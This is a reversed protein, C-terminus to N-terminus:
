IPTSAIRQFWEFIDKQEYSFAMARTHFIYLFSGKVLYFPDTNAYPFPYKSKLKKLAVQATAEDKFIWQEIVGDIVWSSNQRKQYFYLWPNDATRFIETDISYDENRVKANWWLVESKEKEIKYFPFKGFVHIKSDLLEPYSKLRKVRNTDSKYGLSDLQKVLTAFEVTPQDVVKVIAQVTDVKPKEIKETFVPKGAKERCSVIGLLLVIYLSNKM